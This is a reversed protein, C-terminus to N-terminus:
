LGKSLKIAAHYRNGMKEYNKKRFEPLVYYGNADKELTSCYQEKTIRLVKARKGAKDYDKRNRFGKNQACKEATLRKYEAISIGKNEAADAIRKKSYEAPTLGQNKATNSDCRYKYERPTIGQEEALRKVKENQIESSEKV